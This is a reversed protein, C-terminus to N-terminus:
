SLLRLLGERYRRGITVSTGDDLLLVQEGHYWPQLETVHDINVITSRHIRQFHKPNLIQELKKMTGRMIHTRGDAHICMYDGAADIWDISDSALRVTTGGDRIPIM